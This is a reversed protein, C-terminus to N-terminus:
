NMGSQLRKHLNRKGAQLNGHAWFQTKVYIVGRNLVQQMSRQIPGPIVSNSHAWIFLYCSNIHDYPSTAFHLGYRSARATPQNTQFHCLVRFRINSALWHDKGHRLGKPYVPLHHPGNKRLSAFSSLKM